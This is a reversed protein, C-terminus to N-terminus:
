RHTEGAPEWTYFCDAMADKPSQWTPLYPTIFEDLLGSIRAFEPHKRAEAVADDGLDETELLHAYLDGLRYLSRRRVGAIRPLDTRDSEAFIEAVRQETGPQIKAVILTRHM